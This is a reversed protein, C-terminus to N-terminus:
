KLLLESLFKQTELAKTTDGTKEYCEQLKRLARLPVDMPMEGAQYTEYAKALSEIAEAYKGQTYDYEGKAFYKWCPVQIREVDSLAETLTGKSIRLVARHMYAQQSIPTDGYDSIVKSLLEEASTKDKTINALAQWLLARALDGHSYNQDAVIQNLAALADERGGQEVLSSAMLLRSKRCISKQDSHNSLIDQLSQRCEDYKGAKSQITAKWYLLRAKEKEPESTIMQSIIAVAENTRKRAALVEAIDHKVVGRIADQNTYTDILTQFTSISDDYNRHRRQLRGKALLANACRAANSPNSARITDYLAIAESLKGEAGYSEGMLSLAESACPNSPYKSVIESLSERAGSYDRLKICCKGISLLASASDAKCQDHLDCGLYTQYYSRFIALAKPYNGRAYCQEALRSADVSSMNSVDVPSGDDLMLAKFMMEAESFDPLDTSSGYRSKLFDAYARIESDLQSDASAKNVARWMNAKGGMRNGEMITRVFGMKAGLCIVRKSSYTSMISRYTQVAAAYSESQRQCDAKLLMATSCWAGNDPYDTIVKELAQIAPTLEEEDNYASGILYQAEASIDSDVNLNTVLAALVLRSQDYQKLFQRCRGINLLDLAKNKRCAMDGNCTLSDYHQQFLSAAAAYDGSDYANQADSLEVAVASGALSLVIVIILVIIYCYSKIKM